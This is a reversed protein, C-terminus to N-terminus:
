KLRKLILHHFPPGSLPPSPGLHCLQNTAARPNSQLVWLSFADKVKTGYTHRVPKLMMGAEVLRKKQNHSTFLLPGPLPKNSKIDWPLSSLTTNMHPKAQISPRSRAPVM